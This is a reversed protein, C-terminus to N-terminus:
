LSTQRTTPPMADGWRIPPGLDKVGESDRRDHAFVRDFVPVAEWADRAPAHLLKVADHPDETSLWQKAELPTLVCVQRDHFRAFFENPQTTVIAACLKKGEKAAREGSLGPMVMVKGALPRFAYPQKAPERILEFISTAPILCRGTKLLGSWLPSELLRDDRANGVPRSPGVPFGWRMDRVVVEGAEMRAAPVRNTLRVVPRGNWPGEFEWRGRQLADVIDMQAADIGILGAM